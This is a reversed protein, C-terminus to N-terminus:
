RGGAPTRVPRVAEAPSARDAATMGPHLQHAASRAARLLPRRSLGPGAPLGDSLVAAAAPDAPLVALVPLGIVRGIEAPRYPGPGCVVLGLRGRGALEAEALAAAHRAHHCGRVTPRTVLLVLDAAALLPWPLGEGSRGCDVLVDGGFATASLAAALRAWAQSDLGGAQGAHALGPLVRLRPREPVAVLHAALEGGLEALASTPLHRSAAAFTVLGDDLGVRGSLWGPVVDGGAPDADVVLVPGPWGLALALSTTTAGPAGKAGVVAVVGVPSVGRGGAAVAAGAPRDVGV